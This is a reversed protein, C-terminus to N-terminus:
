RMRSRLNVSSDWTGFAVIVSTRRRRDPEADVLAQWTREPAASVVRAHDDVFPLLEV